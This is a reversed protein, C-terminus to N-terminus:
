RMRSVAVSEQPSCLKASQKTVTGRVLGPGPEATFLPRSKSAVAVFQAALARLSLHHERPARDTGGARLPVRLPRRRLRQPRPGPVLLGRRLSPRGRRGHGGGSRSVLIDPAEGAALTCSPECCSNQSGNYVGDDCEEGADVVGDGCTLARAPGAAALLVVLSWGASRLSAM